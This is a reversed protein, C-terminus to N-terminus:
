PNEILDSDRFFNGPLYNAAPLSVNMHPNSLRVELEVGTFPVTINTLLVGIASNPPVTFTANNSGAMKPSTSMNWFLARGSQAETTRNNIYVTVSDGVSVNAPISGTAWVYVAM